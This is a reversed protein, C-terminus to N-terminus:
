IEYVGRMIFVNKLQSTFYVVGGGDFCLIRM